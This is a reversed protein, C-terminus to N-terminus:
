KVNNEYIFDKLDGREERGIEKGDSRFIGGIMGDIIQIEYQVENFDVDYIRIVMELRISNEM